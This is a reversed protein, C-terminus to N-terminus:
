PVTTVEAQNLHGWVIVSLDVVFITVAGEDMVTVLKSSPLLQEGGWLLFAVGLAIGKIQDARGHHKSLHLTIYSLGIMVLPLADLHEHSSTLRMHHAVDSGILIVIGGLALLFFLTSLAYLPPYGATTRPLTM